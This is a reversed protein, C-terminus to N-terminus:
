AMVTDRNVERKPSECSMMLACWTASMSRGFQEALM